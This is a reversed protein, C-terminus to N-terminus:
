QIPQADECDGSPMEAESFSGDLQVKRLACHAVTNAGEFFLQAQREKASQRPSQFQGRLPTQQRLPYLLCNTLDIAADDTERSCIVNRRHLDRHKRRDGRVPQDWTQCTNPLPERLDVHLHNGICPQQVQARLTDIKREAETTLRIGAIV